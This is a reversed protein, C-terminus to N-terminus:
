YCCSYGATALLKYSWTDLSMNMSYSGNKWPITAFSVTALLRDIIKLLSYFEPFYVTQHNSLFIFEFCELFKQYIKLWPLSIPLYELFHFSLFYILPWIKHYSLVKLLKKWFKNNWAPITITWLLPQMQFIQYM